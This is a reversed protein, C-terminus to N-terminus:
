RCPVQDESAFLCRFQCENLLLLLLSFRVAVNRLGLRLHLSLPSDGTETCNICHSHVQLGQANERKERVSRVFVRVVFVSAGGGVCGVM